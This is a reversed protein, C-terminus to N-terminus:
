LSLVVKGFHKQQWVYEFANELENLSFVKTDVVPKIKQAEIARAMDEFQERNGVEIGRVYCARLLPELFTLGEPNEGQGAIFGILDISGGRAVCNFSEKITKVGGVEIIHDFGRGGTLRLAEKGWQPTEKYNLVHQVGLDKLFVAKEKSSTTSVVIAGAALAFKIAFMSVGGTGQTLVWNGPKLPLNGYLANWATLGSCPLTAAEGYSLNEPMRSLGNQDFIGQTRFTGDLSSGLISGM